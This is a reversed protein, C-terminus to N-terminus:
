ELILSDKKASNMSTYLWAKASVCRILTTSNSYKNCEIEQSDQEAIIKFRCGSAHNQFIIQLDQSNNMPLVQRANPTQSETQEAKNDTEHIVPSRNFHHGRGYEVFKAWIDGPSETYIDESENSEM